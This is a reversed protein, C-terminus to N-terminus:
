SRAHNLRLLCFAATRGDWGNYIVLSALNKLLLNAKSSPVFELQAAATQHLSSACVLKKRARIFGSLQLDIDQNKRDHTPNM